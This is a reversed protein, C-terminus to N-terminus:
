DTQVGVSSTTSKEHNRTEPQTKYMYKYRATDADLTQIIGGCMHQM